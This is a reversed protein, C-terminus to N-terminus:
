YQEFAPGLLKMGVADTVSLPSSLNINHFACTSLTWFRAPLFFLFNPCRQTLMNRGRFGFNIAFVHRSLTITGVAHRGVCIAVQYVFSESFGERTTLLGDHNHAGALQLGRKSLEFGSIVFFIHVM